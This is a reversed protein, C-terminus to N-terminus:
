AQGSESSSSAGAHGSRTCDPWSLGGGLHYEDLDGAYDPAYIPDGCSRCRTVTLAHIASARKDFWGLPEDRRPEYAFWGAIHAHQRVLGVIQGGLHVDWLLFGDPHHRKKVQPQPVFTM